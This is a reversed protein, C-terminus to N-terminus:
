KDDELSAKLEDIRREAGELLTAGQRALEVGRGYTALAEDLSIESEGGELRAVLKELEALVDEFGATPAEKKKAM